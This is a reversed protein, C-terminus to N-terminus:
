RGPIPPAPPLLNLAIILLALLAGVASIIMAIQASQPQPYRLALEAAPPAEGIQLDLRIVAGARIQWAALTATTGELGIILYVSDPHAALRVDTPSPFARGQPHSHYFGILELGHDPLEALLRALALDEMWYATDPNAAANTVPFLAEVRAVGPILWTGALVGCTEHPADRRASETLRQALPDSLWIAQINM